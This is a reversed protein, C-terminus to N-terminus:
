PIVSSRLRPMGHSANASSMLLDIRLAPILRADPATMGRRLIPVRARGAQLWFDRRALTGM